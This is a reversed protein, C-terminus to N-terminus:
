DLSLSHAITQILYAVEDENEKRSNLDSSIMLTAFAQDSAATVLYYEYRDDYLRSEFARNGNATKFYSPLGLVTANFEAMTNEFTLRHFTRLEVPAQNQPVVHLILFFSEDETKLKVCASDDNPFTEELFNLPAVFSANYDKAKRPTLITTSGNFDIAHIHQLKLTSVNEKPMWKCMSKGWVGLSYIGLFLALCIIGLIAYTKKKVEDNVGFSITTKKPTDYKIATAKGCDSIKVIPHTPADPNHKIEAKYQTEKKYKIM